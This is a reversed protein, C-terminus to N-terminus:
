RDINGIEWSKGGFECGECVRLGVVRCDGDCDVVGWGREVGKGEM